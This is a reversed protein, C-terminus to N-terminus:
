AAVDPLDDVSVGLFKAVARYTFRYACTRGKGTRTAELEGRRTITRVTEPHLRLIQAVDHVDLLGRRSSM